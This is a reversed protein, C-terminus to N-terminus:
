RCIPAFLPQCLQVLDHLQLAIGAMNSGSSITVESEQELQPDFIIPMATKLLLPTVTGIQYGTVATVQTLDVCTMRRCQLLARVKKPDVSQDGPVCALAFQDGMDRLLIAKVMQAPRIGRQRAADEISVSPTQHMLLRYDVQQQDLYQTLPTPQFKNTM